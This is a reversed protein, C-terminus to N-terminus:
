NGTQNLEVNKLYELLDEIDVPGLYKAEQITGMKGPTGILYADQLSFLVPKQRDRCFYWKAM